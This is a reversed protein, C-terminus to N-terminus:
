VEAKITSCVKGSTEICYQQRLRDDDTIRGGDDDDDDDNNDDAVGDNVLVSSDRLTTAVTYLAVTVACPNDNQYPTITLSETRNHQEFKVGTRSLLELGRCQM